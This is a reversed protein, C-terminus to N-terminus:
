WASTDESSMGVNGGMRGGRNYGGYSGGGGGGSNSGRNYGRSNGGRSNYNNNNNNNGKRFDRGGFGGKGRGGRGRGKGGRFKAEELFAPIEHGNESLLEILDRAVNANKDNFFSLAKGTTGIRGTRGIRHVYDDINSPMDFNIVQTVNKIDLGRAAVDTAVLIPTSGERFSKLAAERERQTRDGHISTTPYGEDALKWELTDAMRKTEVFVLVLGSTVDQLVHKLMEFKNHDEVHEVKQEVDSSAAGVRGVTLFLYNHMFDSALRQIEKPFTASFMLTQRQPTMGEDEVIRRIQPEFGMDLMRDAEDLILHRVCALSVRGREILDVLRGPTATLLDCGRQIEQLQARADVGGYIVVPAIGTKYCFKRAENHIQGALERTPSLILAMPYAKRRSSSGRNEPIEPAGNRLMAAITPFLFGGTKGSGTQACAMLDRNHYGIPISYKQVPTPKMYNLKALNDLLSQPLMDDKFESVGEPADEGTVEVPIDEYKDFNIGTSTAQSFIEKELFPDSGLNGHFGIENVRGTGFSRGGRGGYSRRGGDRDYDRGGGRGGEDREFNSWRSNTPADRRNNDRDNRDFDRSYGRRDDRDYGRDRNRDDRRDYNRNYGGNRYGRDGRDGGRDGGRQYRGRDRRGGRRDDYNGNNNNQNQYNDDAADRQAKSIKLVGKSQGRRSPPVYKGVSGNSTASSGSTSGQPKGSSTSSSESLSAMKSKNSKTPNTLKTLFQTAKALPV